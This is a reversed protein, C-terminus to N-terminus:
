PSAPPITQPFPATQRATAYLALATAYEEPTNVNHLCIGTPDWPRLHEPAIPQIRLAACVEQLRRCGTAYLRQLVALCHHRYAALLPQWRGQYYPVVADVNPNAELQALLQQLLAPCILPLDVAVVLLRQTPAPITEWARLLGALPGQHPLQDRVIQVPCNPDEPWSPLDQHPAAAVVVREVVPQVQRVVHELLPVGAFDLWEKPRGMRRSRGGCLVIGATISAASDGRM